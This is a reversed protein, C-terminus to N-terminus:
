LMLHALEKGQPAPAASASAEMTLAAGKVQYNGPPMALTLVTAAGVSTPVALGKVMGRDTIFWFQCVQGDHPAPLGYVVVNWRHSQNDALIVMGGQYEGMTINAHRVTGARRLISLTDQVSALASGLEAQRIAFREAERSVTHRAWWLSGLALLLSAALALPAFWRREASRRGLAADVVSRNFGPRPAIPSAGLPLWALDHELATTAERCEACGSLHEHFAQEEDRELARIVFAQRQEIFWEHSTM